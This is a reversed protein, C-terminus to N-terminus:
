WTCNRKSSCKPAIKSSVKSVWVAAGVAAVAGVAAAAAVAAVAAVAAAPPLPPAGDGVMVRTSRVGVGVYVM